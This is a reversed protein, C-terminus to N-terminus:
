GAVDRDDDGHQEDDLKFVNVGVVGLAQRFASLVHRGMQGKQGRVWVSDNGRARQPIRLIACGFTAEPYETGRALGLRLREVM